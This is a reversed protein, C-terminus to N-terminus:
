QPIIMTKLEFLEMIKVILTITTMTLAVVLQEWLPKGELQVEHQSM